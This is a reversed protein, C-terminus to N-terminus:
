NHVIVYGNFTRKMPDNTAPTYIFRLAISDSGKTFIMGGSFGEWSAGGDLSYEINLNDTDPLMAVHLANCTTRELLSHEITVLMPASKGGANLDVRFPAHNLGSSQEMNFGETTQFDDIVAYGLNFKQAAYAAYARLLMANTDGNGSPIVRGLSDPDGNASGVSPSNATVKKSGVQREQASLRGYMTELRDMVPYKITVGAKLQSPMILNNYMMLVWWYETSGLLRHAIVDPRAEDEVVVYTGAMPLKTLETMFHSDLIDYVGSKDFRMLKEPAYRKETQKKIDIYFM